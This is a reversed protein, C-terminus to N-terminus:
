TATREFRVGAATADPHARHPFGLTALLRQARSTGPSEALRELDCADDIDLQLGPLSLALWAVGVREAAARHRLASDPGFRFGIVRLPRCALANTGTGRRDPVVIVAPGPDVLAQAILDVEVSSVMPVDSPVVILADAGRRGLDVAAAELAANLAADRPLGGGNTAQPPSPEELTAMGRDEALARVRADSSVVLVGDLRTSAALADLVDELMATALRARDAARLVGRLRNKAADLNKVPVAAWM